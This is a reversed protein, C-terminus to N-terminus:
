SRVELRGPDKGLKNLWEILAHRAPMDKLFIGLGLNTHHIHKDTELYLDGLASGNQNVKKLFEVSTQYNCLPDNISHICLVQMNDSSSVFNYPEANSRNYGKEFLMNLTFNGSRSKGIASEFRLPGSISCFGKIPLLTTNYKQPLEKNYTM